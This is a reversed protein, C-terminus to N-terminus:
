GQQVPVVVLEAVNIHAPVSVAFAITDPIDEATLPRLDTRMRTLSTQMSIDRMDHGLETVTVGPEVNKVRVGRPGLEARLNRTLHAVASKTACYVSWGPYLSHGAVSGVHVLDAPRGQAAAALLDATFARATHLLGRLNVDIMRDWEETHATEYPAGLMVGANAVVLDVPGLTATITRAAADIAKPDALDTTVPLIPATTTPGLEDALARLREARRGLLAVAAGDAALRRATAAGIGSSAGTVVAVRGTLRQATHGAHTDRTLSPSSSSM